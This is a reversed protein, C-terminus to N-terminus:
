ENNEEYKNIGYEIIIDWVLAKNTTHDFLDSLTQCFKESLNAVKELDTVGIRGSLGTFSVSMVIDSAGNYSFHFYDHGFIKAINAVGQLAKASIIM